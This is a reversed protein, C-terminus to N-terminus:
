WRRKGAQERLKDFRSRGRESVGKTSGAPKSTEPRRGSAESSFSECVTIADETPTNGEMLPVLAKIRSENVKDDKTWRGRDRLLNGARLTRVETDDVTSEQTTGETTSEETEDDDCDKGETQGDGDGDPDHFMEMVRKRLGEMTEGEMDHRMMELIAEKMAKVNSCGEELNVVITSLKPPIPTAIENESLIVGVSKTTDQPMEQESEFLNSTTSSNDVMDVTKPIWDTFTVVGGILKVGTSQVTHSMGFFGLGREIDEYVRETMPHSMYHVLTGYLGDETWRVNEFAGFLDQIIRSPNLPDPHNFYVKLGNYSDALRQASESNYAYTSEGYRMLEQPLGRLNKVKNRSQYGMVKVNEIRGDKANDKGKPLEPFKEEKLEIQCTHTTM